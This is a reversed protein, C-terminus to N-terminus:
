TPKTDKMIHKILRKRRLYIPRFLHQFANNVDSTTKHHKSFIYFHAEVM